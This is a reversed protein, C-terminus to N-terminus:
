IDLKEHPNPGPGWWPLPGPAPMNVPNTISPQCASSGSYRGESSKTTVTSSPTYNSSILLWTGSPLLFYNSSVERTTTTTTVSRVEHSCNYTVMPSSTPSPTVTFTYDTTWSGYSVTSAQSISTCTKSGAGSAYCDALVNPSLFWMVSFVFVLKGIVKRM